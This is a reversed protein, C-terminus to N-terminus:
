LYQIQHSINRNILRESFPSLVVLFLPSYLLVTWPLTSGQNQPPILVFKSISNLVNQRLCMLRNTIFILHPNGSTGQIFM